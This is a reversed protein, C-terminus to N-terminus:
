ASSYVSGPSPQAPGRREEFRLGERELEALVPRYIRPDTPIWCGALDLRGALRLRAAVAAPLGVTRAMATMGGPEGHEVLTAIRRERSGDPRRGDPHRGDPYSVTLEHRLVVMDRGGAPLTLKRALLAALAGATTSADGGIPVDDFLGLWSLRAMAESAPDLGLFAAAHAAVDGAAGGPLHMEVLEAWTREPLGPVPLKEDPLGLRVVQRWTEAFGPWRLTGRILTHASGLGFAERYALSDRNPYAEMTGVGEVEVPWVDAFVRGWPRRRIRGGRLYQAGDSGAMVVNRANWTVAYGIPNGRSDAAPVGSGYSEFSEVEGGEARVRDLLEMASMHDIGPDLGMENLLLVGREKAETDLAAVRPDTYSATILSTGAAVSRRAVAPHFPPPLLSVVLDAGALPDTGPAPEAAADFEIARGRPHGAVRREALARDRDGVTVRWDGEAAHDLLHRILLPASQGAGLVLIERM